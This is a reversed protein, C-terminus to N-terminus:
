KLMTMKGIRVDDGTRAEYFYVGSSAGSGQNDTGDWVITQDAGAPRPGDILTKVLRGRLDFISLKLHGARPLSYKITTVPNFPNPYHSTAFALGPLDAVASVSAGDHSIGLYSLVDYLLVARTPLGSYYIDDPNPNHM